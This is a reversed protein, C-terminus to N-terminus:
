RIWHARPSQRSWIGPLIALTTIVLNGTMLAGFYHEEPLLLVVFLFIIQAFVAPFLMDVPRLERLWKRAPSHIRRLMLLTIAQRDEDTLNNFIEHWNM